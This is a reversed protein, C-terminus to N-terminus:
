YTHISPSKILSCKASNPFNDEDNRAQISKVKVSCYLPIIAACYSGSIGRNYLM